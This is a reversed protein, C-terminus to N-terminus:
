PTKDKGRKGGPRTRQRVLGAWAMAGGLLWGALLAALIALGRPLAIHAFLFDYRVAGPNLAAFLAGAALCVLVLVVM